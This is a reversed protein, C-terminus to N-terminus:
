LYPASLAGTGRSQATKRRCFAGSALAKLGQRCGKRQPWTKLRFGRAALWSIGLCSRPRSFYFKLGKEDFCFTLRRRSPFWSPFVGNRFGYRSRPGRWSVGGLPPDM